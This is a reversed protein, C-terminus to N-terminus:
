LGSPLSKRHYAEYHIAAAMDFRKLVKYAEQAIMTHSLLGNQALPVLQTIITKNLETADAVATGRHACSKYLSLLLKDRNFTDLKRSGASHAVRWTGALDVTEYSSFIAGCATCARRRWVANTRRNFRSNTVQTKSGCYICVM